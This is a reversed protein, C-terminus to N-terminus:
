WRLLCKGLSKMGFIDVLIKSPGVFFLRETTESLCSSLFPFCQDLWLKTWDIVLWLGFFNILTPTLIVHRCLSVASSPKIVLWRWDNELSFFWLCVSLLSFFGTQCTKLSWTRTRLFFKDGYHYAALRPLLKKLSFTDRRLAFTM